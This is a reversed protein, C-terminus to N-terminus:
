KFTAAAAGITYDSVIRGGIIHSNIIEKAKKADMKVYTVKQKGPEYVEVIPEYQCFGICGAKAVSANEIKQTKIEEKLADMVAKAGAAMGCTAMGVVIKTSNEQIEFKLKANERMAKLEAVNKM